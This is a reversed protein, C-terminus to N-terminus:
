APAHDARREPVLVLVEVRRAEQVRDLLGRPRGRVPQVERRFWWRHERWGLLNVDRSKFLIRGASPATLGLIMRALTTKGSGSEGAVALIEHSGSPLSLTAGDVAPFKHVALGRRVTFERRLGELSLLPTDATM